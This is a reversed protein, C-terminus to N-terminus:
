PQRLHASRWRGLRHRWLSLLGQVSRRRFAVLGVRTRRHSMWDQKYDDDGTLYDVDVVREEDIAQRMLEASLVSGASLKKYAEDYALKYIMAKRDKIIWLQAAVPQGNLELIGLRLWGRRALARCLMPVFDVHPEPVKWSQAYIDGFQRIAADLADGPERHVSIRWPGTSDLKKRGRRVTNKIRSPLTAEYSAYSPETVPLHWNGFCFYRDTTFGNSQLAQELAPLFDGEPDLPQLDLVDSLAGRAAQHSLLAQLAQVQDVGAHSLVPGFLSSYYNSLAQTVPGYVAAPGASRRVLPLVLAQSGHRWFGVSRTADQGIGHADLNQLWTCTQFLDAHADDGFWEALAEPWPGWSVQPRDSPNM